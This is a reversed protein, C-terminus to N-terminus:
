PLLPELDEFSKPQAKAVRDVFRRFNDGDVPADMGWDALGYSWELYGRDVWYQFGKISRLCCEAQGWKPHEIKSERRIKGLGQERLRSVVKSLLVRRSRAQCNAFAMEMAELLNVCNARSHRRNALISSWEISRWDPMVFNKMFPQDVLSDYSSVRPFLLVSTCGLLQTPMNNKLSDWRHKDAVVVALRFRKKAQVLEEKQSEFDRALQRNKTGWTIKKDAKLQFHQLAGRSKRLVLDDVKCRAQKEVLVDKSENIYPPLHQLLLYTAFFREYRNGVENNTGGQHQHQLSKETM